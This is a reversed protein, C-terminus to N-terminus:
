TRGQARDGGLHAGGAHAAGRRDEDPGRQCGLPEAVAVEVRVRAHARGPRSRCARASPRSRGSRSRRARTRSRTTARLGGHAQAAPLHGHDLGQSGTGRAPRARDGRGRRAVRGVRPDRRRDGPLGGLLDGDGRGVVHRFACDADLMVVVEDVGDPFGEALLRGTTIQVARGVRNLPTRHRATLAHVSSIGPVVEHEFAVTGRALIRDLVALTSDYLSPDGWVLFAGCDDEGLEEGIAHEWLEARRRRWEEVATGYAPATRDRPPDPIEVIRYTQERVYRECIERRLRVLEENQPGKDVVFFVDVENLAGVAQVTVHEPDGAGIGIVLLRRM